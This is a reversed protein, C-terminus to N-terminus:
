IYETVSLSNFNTDYVAVLFLGCKDYITSDKIRYEWYPDFNEHKSKM